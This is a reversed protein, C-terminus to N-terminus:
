VIYLKAGAVTAVYLCVTDLVDVEQAHFPASAALTVVPSDSLIARTLPLQLPKGWVQKTTDEDGSRAELQPRQRTHELVGHFTCLYISCQGTAFILAGNELHDDPPLVTLLYRNLKFPVMLRVVRAIPDAGEATTAWLTVLFLSGQSDLCSFTVSESRREIPYIATISTASTASTAPELALVSWAQNTDSRDLHHMVLGHETGAVVTAGSSPVLALCTVEMGPYSLLREFTLRLQRRRTKGLTVTHLAASWVCIEAVGKAAVVMRAGDSAVHAETPNPLPMVSTRRGATPPQYDDDDEEDGDKRGKAAHLYSFSGGEGGVGVAAGSLASTPKSPPSSSSSSSSSSSTTTSAAVSAAAQRWHDLTKELRLPVEVEVEIAKWECAHQHHHQSTPAKKRAQDGRVVVHRLEWAKVEVEDGEREHLSVVVTARPARRGPGAPGQQELPVAGGGDSASGSTPPPAAAATSTPDPVVPVALFDVWVSSAEVQLVQGGDKFHHIDCSGDSRSLGVFAPPQPQM